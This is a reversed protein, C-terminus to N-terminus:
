RVRVDGVSIPKATCDTWYGHECKMKIYHLNDEKDECYYM